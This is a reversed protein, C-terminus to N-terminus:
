LIKLFLQLRHLHQQMIPMTRFCSYFLGNPYLHVQKMCVWHRIIMPAVVNQIIVKLMIVNLMITKLLFVNLRIVNLMIVNMM